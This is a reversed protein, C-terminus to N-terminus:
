CFKPWCLVIVFWSVIPECIVHIFGISFKTESEKEETVLNTIYLREIMKAKFLRGSIYLGFLAIVSNVAGQFGGLDGL